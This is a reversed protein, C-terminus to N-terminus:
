LTHRGMTYACCCNQGNMAISSSSAERRLGASKGMEGPRVVWRGCISECGWSTGIKMCLSANVIGIKKGPTLERHKQKRAEMYWWRGSQIIPGVVKQQISCTCRQYAGECLLSKNCLSVIAPHKVERGVKKSASRSRGNKSTPRAARNPYLAHASPSRWTCAPMSPHTILLPDIASFDNQPSEALQTANLAQQYNSHSNITMNRSSWTDLAFSPPSTLNWSDFKLSPQGYSYSKSVWPLCDFTVM